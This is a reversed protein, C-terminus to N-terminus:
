IQKFKRKWDELPMEQVYIITYPNKPSAHHEATPSGIRQWSDDVIVGCRVLLDQLSTQANDADRRRNDGHYFEFHLSASELPKFPRNSLKIVKQAYNNWRVFPSAKYTCKQVSNFKVNNKQSPVEGDLRFKFVQM